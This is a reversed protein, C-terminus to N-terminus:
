PLWPSQPFRRKDEDYQVEVSEPRKREGFGSFKVVLESGVSEYWPPEWSVGRVNSQESARWRQNVKAGVPEYSHECSAGHVYSKGSTRWIQNVEAGVPEYQTEWPAGRLNSKGSTRWIQNM